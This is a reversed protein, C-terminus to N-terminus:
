LTMNQTITQNSVTFVAKEWKPASYKEKANNSVGYPETPIIGFRMNLKQNDDKDHYFSIAYEGSPIDKFVAEVTGKKAPVSLYKYGQKLFSDENNYLGIMISGENSEINNVVIKINAKSEQAMGISLSFFSFLTLIKKLNQM